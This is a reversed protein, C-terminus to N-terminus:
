SKANPIIEDQTINEFVVYEMKTESTSASVSPKLAQAEAHKQKLRNKIYHTGDINIATDVFKLAQRLERQANTQFLIKPRIANKTKVSKNLRSRIAECVSIM